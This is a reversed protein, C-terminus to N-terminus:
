YDGPMSGSIRLFYKEYHLMSIAIQIRSFKIIINVRSILKFVFVDVNVSEGERLTEGGVEYIGIVCPQFASYDCFVKQKIKNQKQCALDTGETRNMCKGRIEMNAKQLCVNDEGSHEVEDRLM